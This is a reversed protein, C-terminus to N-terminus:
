PKAGTGLAAPPAGKKSQRQVLFVTAAGLAAAAVFAIVPEVWSSPEKDPNTKPQGQPLPQSRALDALDNWKNVLTEARQGIGWANPLPLDPFPSLPPAPIVLNTSVFKEIEPRDARWENARIILGPVVHMLQDLAGLQRAIKAQYGRVDSGTMAFPKPTLAVRDVDMAGSADRSPTFADVVAEKIATLVSLFDWDIRHRERQLLAKTGPHQTSVNFM